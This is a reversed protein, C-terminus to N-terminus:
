EKFLDGATPESAFERGRRDVPRGSSGALANTPCPAFGERVGLRRHLPRRHSPHWKCSSRRWSAAPATSSPELVVGNAPQDAASKLDAIDAVLLIM